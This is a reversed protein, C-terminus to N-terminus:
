PIPLGPVKARLRVIFRYVQLLQLFAGEFNRAEYLDVARQVLPISESLEKNQNSHEDLYKNLHQLLGATADEYFADAAQKETDLETQPLLFSQPQLPFGTYLAMPDVGFPLFGGAIGGAVNGIQEGLRRNGFLGGIARGALGGGLGGLVSGFFGQPNIQENVTAQPVPGYAPSYMTYYGPYIPNM